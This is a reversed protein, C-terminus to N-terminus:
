NLSPVKSLFDNRWIQQYTEASMNGGSLIVMVRKTENQNKLWSAAAAMGMASTPEVTVKLLHSLWQTWYMIPEEPVEIIGALKKLGEFTRPTLSLTRAGDAITQPSDKFRFISGQRLSQAADNAQLPEAAFVKARPALKEAAIYTGTALGGGGVPAFIADPMARMDQLAELCATGQGAIVDENDFPPIVVAGKAAAAKVRDEAEQRTETVVVEAGYGRTAQQKVASVIKPLYITTRVGLMSGAWAVAQAHNGSSYAVVHEPLQNKEKLALLANLAGRAKFAGIKQFIEAKFIIEHGLWNNLHESILLPTRHIFPALREGAKAVDDFVPLAAPATNHLSTAPM